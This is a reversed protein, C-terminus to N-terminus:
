LVILKVFPREGLRKKVDSVLIPNEVVKSESSYLSKSMDKEKMETHQSIIKRLIIELNRKERIINNISLMPNNHRIITNIFVM